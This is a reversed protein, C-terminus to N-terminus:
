MKKPAPISSFWIRNNNTARIISPKVPPLIEIANDAMASIESSFDFTLFKPSIPMANPMPTMRPGKIPPWSASGPNTGQNLIAVGNQNAAIRAKAFIRRTINLNLSVRFVRTWVFILTKVPNRLMLFARSNFFMLVINMTTKRRVRPKLKKVCNKWTKRM